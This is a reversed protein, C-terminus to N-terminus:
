LGRGEGFTLWLGLKKLNRAERIVNDSLHVDGSVPEQDHGNEINSIDKLDRRIGLKGAEDREKGSLQDTSSGQSM